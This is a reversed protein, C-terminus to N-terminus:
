VINGCLSNIRVKVLLPGGLFITGINNVIMTRDAITQIYATGATYMFWM